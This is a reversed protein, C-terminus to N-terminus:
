AIAIVIISLAISALILLLSLSMQVIAVYKFLGTSRTLALSSIYLAALSVMICGVASIITIIVAMIVSIGIFGRNPDLAAILSAASSFSSILVALMVSSIILLVTGTVAYGFGDRRRKPEEDASNDGRTERSAGFRMWGGEREDTPFDAEGEDTDSSRANEERFGRATRSADTNSQADVGDVTDTAGCSDIHSVTDEALLDEGLSGPKNDKM